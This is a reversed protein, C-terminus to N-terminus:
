QTYRMEQRFIKVFEEKTVEILKDKLKLKPMQLSHMVERQDEESAKLIQSTVDTPQFAIKQPKKKEYQESEQTTFQNSSYRVPKMTMATEETNVPKNEKNTAYM